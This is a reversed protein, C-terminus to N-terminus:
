DSNWSFVVPDQFEGEERGPPTFSIKFPKTMDIKPACALTSNDWEYRPFYKKTAVPLDKMFTGAHFNMRKPKGGAEQIRGQWRHFRAVMEDLSAVEIIFCTSEQYYSMREALENENQSITPNERISAELLAQSYPTVSMALLLKESVRSTENMITRMKWGPAAAGVLYQTAAPGALYTGNGIGRKASSTPGPTSCSVLILALLLSINKM